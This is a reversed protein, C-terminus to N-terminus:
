LTSQKESTHVLSNSGFTFPVKPKGKIRKGFELKYLMM